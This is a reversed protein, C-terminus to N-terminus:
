KLDEELDQQLAVLRNEMLRPATAHRRARTAFAMGGQMVKMASAISDVQKRSSTHQALDIAGRRGNSDRWGTGTQQAMRVMAFSIALNRRRVEHIKTQKAKRRLRTGFLITVVSCHFNQKTRWHFRTIVLAAKGAVESMRRFSFPEDPVVTAPPPARVLYTKRRPKQEVSCPRISQLRRQLKQEFSPDFCPQNDLLRSMGPPMLDGNAAARSELHERMVRDVLPDLSFM